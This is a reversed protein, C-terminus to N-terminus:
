LRGTIALLAEGYRELKRAGVGSIGRLDAMTQPRAAAISELTTDH